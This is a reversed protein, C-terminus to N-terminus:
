PDTEDEAAKPPLPAAKPDRGPEAWPLSGPPPKATPRPPPPSPRKPRPKGRWRVLLGDGEGEGPTAMPGAPTGRPPSPDGEAQTAESASRERARAARRRQRRRKRYRGLAANYGLIVNVARAVADGEPSPQPTSLRRAVLLVLVEQLRRQGAERARALEPFTPGQPEHRLSVRFRANVEAIRQIAPELGLSRLTAALEPERAFKLILDVTEFQDVWALRTIAAVGEPFLRAHAAEAALARPSGAGYIKATARLVEGVGALARDLEADLERAEPAHMRQRKHGTWNLEMGGLADEAELAEAVAARVEALADLELAGFVRRLCSSRWRSNFRRLKILNLAPDM